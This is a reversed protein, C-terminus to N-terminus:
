DREKLRKYQEYNRDYWVFCECECGIIRCRGFYTQNDEHYGSAHGCKRCIYKGM